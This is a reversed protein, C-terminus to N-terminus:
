GATKSDAERLEDDDALSRSLRCHLRRRMTNTAATRRQDGANDDADDDVDADTLRNLGEKTMNPHCWATGLDHVFHPHVHYAARM